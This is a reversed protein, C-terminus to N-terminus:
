RVAGTGRSWSFEPRIGAIVAIRIARGAQSDPTLLLEDKCGTAACSAILAKFNVSTFWDRAAFRVLLRDGSHQIPHAFDDSKSTRVLATGRESDNDQAFTFEGRFRLTVGDARVSGALRLSHEGLQEAADLVLPADDTLLSAIGLDYMFSHAVGTIGHMTGVKRPTADLTNVRASDRWEALAQDCLEGAEYGPCLTLPGFALEAQSLTIAVGDRGAFSRGASGSLWLEVQAAHQSTDICASLVFFVGLFSRKV